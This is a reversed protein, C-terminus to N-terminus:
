TQIRMTLQSFCQVQHVIVIKETAGREAVSSSLGNHFVSSATSGSHFPELDNGSHSMHANPDDSTNQSNSSSSALPHSSAGTTTACDETRSRMHSHPNTGLYEEEEDLTARYERDKRAASESGRRRYAPRAAARGESLKVASTFSDSHGAFPNFYLSDPLVNSGSPIPEGGSRPMM